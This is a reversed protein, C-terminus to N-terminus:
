DYEDHRRLWAMPFPLADEDRGKPTLDLLQYAANFGDLGRAYVSYTHWVTAGERRFVSLGPAESGEFGGKRYNYVQEGRALDEDTFSVGMDHNFDSGLSSVWPIDWGMRRRYAALRDYPARSVLTLATDRAALHPVLGDLTDAWFSCIPCGAEWDPGFMFHYVVLQSRGTFLDPLTLEGEPGTFRYDKTIRLAPLARRAEALRDRARTLAKEEELLRLRADRWDERSAAERM